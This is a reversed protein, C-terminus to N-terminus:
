LVCSPMGTPPTGNAATATQQPHRGLNLLTQGPPIQRPSHEGPPTQRPSPTYGLMCQPLCGEPWFEQCVSRFINGQRLKTALPLFRTTQYKSSTLLLHNRSDYMQTFRKLRNKLSHMNVNILYVNSLFPLIKSCSLMGTPRTGGVQQGHVTTIRTDRHPHPPPKGSGGTRMCAPAHQSALWGTPTTASAQSFIIKGQVEHAPPLFLVVGWPFFIFYKQWYHCPNSFISSTGLEEFSPGHKVGYLKYKWFTSHPQLLHYVMPSLIM